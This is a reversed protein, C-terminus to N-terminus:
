VGKEVLKSFYVDPNTGGPTLDGYSACSHLSTGKDLDYIEFRNRDNNRLWEILENLQPKEM